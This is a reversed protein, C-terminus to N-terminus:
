FKFIVIVINEYKFSGVLIEGTNFIGDFMFWVWNLFLLVRFLHGINRTLKIIGSHPYDSYFNLLGLLVILYETFRIYYGLLVM